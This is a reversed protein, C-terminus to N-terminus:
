ILKLEAMSVYESENIIFHDLLEMGLLKGGEKLKNTIHIDDGSPTLNGSPHNHCLIVKTSKKHVALNYIEMPSLVVENTSGLAVLEIYLIINANNLGIVWFHEKKRALANERLLISQMITYVQKSNAIQIKQEKTLRVQM